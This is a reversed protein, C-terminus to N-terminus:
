DLMYKVRGITNLFSYIAIINNNYKLIYLNDKIERTIYNGNKVRFYEEDTLNIVEYNFIEDATLLKYNGKKLDNITYSDKIDFTGQKTRTLNSLTGVTNLKLCMDDILSRIYTGKSVTTKFTFSDKNFELLEINFIEIKRKPPTIKEGTRAYDYLRKGKISIASYLPVTQNQIGLFSSLTKKLEEKTINYDSEEVINGTIDLTDTKIGLKVEAIYEKDLSTIENVLKTYKGLCVVLVGTALPDLTGTHGIKSMNFINNMKNIVDRSTYNIEKNLIIIGNM